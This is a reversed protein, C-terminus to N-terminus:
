LNERYSAENTKKRSLFSSICMETRLKTQCIEFMYLKKVSPLYKPCLIYLSCSFLTVCYQDLDSSNGEKAIRSHIPCHNYRLDRYNIQNQARCLGRVCVLTSGQHRGREQDLERQWTMCPTQNKALTHWLMTIPVAISFCYEKSHSAIQKFHILSERM